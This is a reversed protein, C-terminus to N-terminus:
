KTTYLNNYYTSASKILKCPTINAHYGRGSKIQRKIFLMEQNFKANPGYTLSNLLHRLYTSAAYEVKNSIIMHHHREIFDLMELVNNNFQQM